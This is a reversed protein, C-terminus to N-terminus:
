KNKFRNVNVNSALASTSGSGTEVEPGGDM